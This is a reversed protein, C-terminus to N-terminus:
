VAKDPLRDLLPADNLKMEVAAPTDAFGIDVTNMSPFRLQQNKLRVPVTARSGKRVPTSGIEM